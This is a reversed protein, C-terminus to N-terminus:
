ARPLEHPIETLLSIFKVLPHRIMLNVDERNGFVYVPKGRGIAYGVEAHMGQLRHGPLVFAIVADADDLDEYNLLAVEPPGEMPKDWHSVVRHNLGRLCARFSGNRIRPDDLTGSIYLKM